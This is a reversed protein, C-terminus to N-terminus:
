KQRVLRVQEQALASARAESLRSRDRARRVLARANDQATIGREALLPEVAL